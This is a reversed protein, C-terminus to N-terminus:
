LAKVKAAFDTLREILHPGPEQMLITNNHTLLELEKYRWEIQQDRNLTKLYKVTDSVSALLKKYRIVHNPEDDFSMDFYNEYTKFGLMGLRRNIGPQGYIIMPQFNIIPKLIKESYFFSTGNVDDTLTENVISFLSKAHLDPLGNFPENIHFCNEDAILPLCRKFNEFQQRTLGADTLMEDSLGFASQVRDQSIYADNRLDSNFLCFQAVIRHFRNRRSLSLIFKSYQEECAQRSQEYTIFSNQWDHKNTLVYIPLINIEASTDAFNGTFFFIKKPNINNTICSQYLTRAIPAENPSCGEFTGDFILITKDNRLKDLTDTGLHQLLDESGWATNKPYSLLVPIYEVDEIDTFLDKSLKLFNTVITHNAPQWYFDNKAINVELKKM